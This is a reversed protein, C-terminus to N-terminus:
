PIVGIHTKWYGFFERNLSCVYTVAFEFPLCLSSSFGVDMDSYRLAIGIYRFIGDHRFLGHWKNQRKRELDYKEIGYQANICKIVTKLKKLAIDASDLGNHLLLDEDLPKIGLRECAEVYSKPFNCIEVCEEETLPKDSVLMIRDSVYDLWDPKYYYESGKPIVFRYYGEHPARYSHYGEYILDGSVELEVGANVKGVEYQYYFSLSKLERNLRKFVPIDEGAVMKERSQDDLLFSM